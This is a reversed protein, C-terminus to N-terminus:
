KADRVPLADVEVHAWASRLNRYIVGGNTAQFRRAGELTNPTPSFPDPYGCAGCVIFEEKLRLEDFVVRIADEAEGRVWQRHDETADGWEVHALQDKNHLAEAVKEVLVPDIRQGDPM